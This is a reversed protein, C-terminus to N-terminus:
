RYLSKVAGWTRNLAPTSLPCNTPNTQWTVYNSNTEAANTVTYDGIGAPQQMKAENFVLCAAVDCGACAGTNITKTFNIIVKSIILEAGDNPVDYESGAPIAAGGNLRVQNASHGQVNTGQQVAFVSLNPNDHWINWCNFGGALATPDFTMSIANQRCQGSNTLWWDPLTAGDVTVDVIASTAAFSPMDAPVIASCYVQVNGLNSGCAFTKDKVVGGAACDDWNLYLGSAMSATAGLVMLTAALTLVKKM